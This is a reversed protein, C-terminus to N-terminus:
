HGEYHSTIHRGLSLFGELLEPSDDGMPVKRVLILEATQTVDHLRELLEPLDHGM